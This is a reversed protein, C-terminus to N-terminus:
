GMYHSIPSQIWTLIPCVLFIESLKWLADCEWADHSRLHLLPQHESVQQSLRSDGRGQIEGWLPAVDPVVTRKLTQVHISGTISEQGLRLLLYCIWAPLLHLWSWLVGACFCSGGAKGGCGGSSLPGPPVKQGSTRAWTQGRSSRKALVRYGGPKLFRRWLRRKSQSSKDGATKRGKDRVETDPSGCRLTLNRHFMHKAASFHPRSESYVGTCGLALVRSQHDTHFGAPATSPVQDKRLSPEELCPRQKEDARVVPLRQWGAPSCLM